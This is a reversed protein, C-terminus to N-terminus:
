IGCKLTSLGAASPTKRLRGGMLNLTGFHSDTFIGFAAGSCRRAISFFAGKISL